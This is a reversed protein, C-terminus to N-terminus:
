AAGGARVILHRYFAVAGAADGVRIREATGHIRGMDEPTVTFPAFRYVDDAIPRFYRSDTAGLLIWPAVTVGPFVDGIAGSVVRFAESETSSLAPPDPPSEGFTRATVTVQDGVLSRVHDLVGSATDGPLIRFNVVAEAEQPLVNSKVGGSVMTAAATTRILASTMPSASLRREVIPGLREAHRLLLARPGRMVSALARLFPRQVELRAPMPNDEIRTIAAAVRGVASHAPPASSHGGEGRASVVVDLSAKEGVGVLALPAAVGPLLEEAVAGGEDLVFSFRVGRKGLLDAAAVAGRGGSEEDHGLFIYISPGPTFREALLGEIAQLLAILSGKDDLTGRGWLHEDDRVGSFPPQPWEGETGPEVPVVDQHAMLLFPLIDGDSGPWRFLLSHGGGVREMELLAHVQPFAGALFTHFEDFVAEDYGDDTSVTPFRVSQALLELFRDGAEDIPPVLRASAEEPKSWRRRLAAAAAAGLGAGAILGV